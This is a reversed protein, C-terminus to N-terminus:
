AVEPGSSSCSERAMPRLRVQSSTAMLYSTPVVCTHRQQTLYNCCSLIVNPIVGQPHVPQASQTHFKRQQPLVQSASPQPQQEIPWCSVSQHGHACHHM